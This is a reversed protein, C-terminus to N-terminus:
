VARPSAPRLRRHMNLARIATRLKGKDIHQVSQPSASPRTAIRELSLLFHNYEGCHGFAVEQRIVKSPQEGSPLPGVPPAPRPSPIVVLIWRTSLVLIMYRYM